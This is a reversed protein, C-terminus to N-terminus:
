TGNKVGELLEKYDQGTCVKYVKWGMLQANNIKENDKAMSAGRSHRGFVFVGGDYEFAIKREPLCYDFRWRRIPHFRYEKILEKGFLATLSLEFGLKHNM